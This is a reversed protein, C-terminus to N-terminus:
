EYQVIDKHGWALTESSSDPKIYRKDDNCSLAIKNVLQTTIIHNKSRFVHMPAMVSNSGLVQKYLDFNFTKVTNKSIGKAKMLLKGTITKFSYMKSRLGVFETIIEGNVEDKFKGLIKGNKRKIGYINNDAYSSTDFYNGFDEDNKLDEYFNDTEILYIFSDTDMYALKLNNGYKQLMVDYHFQYMHLKSLELVTFGIYIPKDYIVKLRNFQIAVLNETFIKHSHYNPKAILIRAGAKKGCREWHTILKVDKRKDIDEMTKGFISNNMLKFFDKEFDSTAKTRLQTNLDIYTKLFNSEDYKLVRHIKTVVLGKKICEELSKYHIIYESKKELTCLLKSVKSGPPKKFEACFPLDNHQDHLDKNYEFDVELAYGVGNNEFIEKNITIKGDLTTSIRNPDIWMFNKYPLQQIMSHGYLNNADIYMIYKSPKTVDYHEMYKNNAKMYKHTSQVIGGRIGKKYFAYMEYDNLLELEIKTTKLMASWSLGPATYYHAPDLGYFSLCVNRFKEFIDALLLVDTKLYLDSYDGLKKCNFKKYVLKAYLYDKIDIKGGIETTFKEISPLETTQFRDWSDMYEYPYIGKRTLMEWNQKFEAQLENFDNHDLAKALKELSSPMFRYSDLFRIQVKESKDFFITKTVAIYQEKNDAIVSIYKDNSGFHKAFLHFDYKSGNHLFVPIFNRTRLKLNCASHAPGCYDGNYHNHDKVKIKSKNESITQDLNEIFNDGCIYCKQAEQYEQQQNKSLPKMVLPTKMYTEYLYKTDETIMELFKEACNPGRYLRPKFTVKENFSNVIQYAFSCPIHTAITTTSSLSPNPLCTNNPQLLCEFDAYIAFPAKRQKEVDKFKITSGKEPMQVITKACDEKEIHKELKEKSKFTLFCGFCQHLRGDHHNVQSHVLRSMNKIYCYHGEPNEDNILLMLNIHNPKPTTTLHYIVVKEDEWGYVNISINNLREFLSVDNLKVPYEIGTFNLDTNLTRYKQVRQPDKKPPYLASLVAWRFCENDTNKVNIMANKLALLKPTAIYSSGSYPTYQNIDIEMYNTSQLSWGSDREQFHSLKIKLENVLEDYIKNNDSGFTVVKSKTSHGIECNVYNEGNETTRPKIYTCNLNFIVKFSVHKSKMNEFLQLIKNKNILLFKEPLISENSNKLQYTELRNKFAMSIKNMEDVEERTSKRIHSASRQHALYKTSCLEVDCTDCRRSKKTAKNENCSNNAKRKQTANITSM